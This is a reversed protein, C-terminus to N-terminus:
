SLTAVEDGDGEVDDQKGADQERERHEGDVQKAVTKAVREVRPQCALESGMAAAAGSRSTSARRTSKSVRAPVTRATSPTEHRSSSPPVSPRTPSDPQPLLTVARETRRRSRAGGARTPPAM